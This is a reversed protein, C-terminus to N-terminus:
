YKLFYYLKLIVGSLVHASLVAMLTMTIATNNFFSAVTVAVVLFGVTFFFSKGMASQRIMKKREDNEAIYMKKLFDESKLARVCRAIFFIMVAFAGSFLGIPFGKIFGDAFTGDDTEAQGALLTGIIVIAVSVLTCIALLILRNKLVKRYETM